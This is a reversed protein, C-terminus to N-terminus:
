LFAYKMILFIMILGCIFRLAAVLMLRKLVRAVSTWRPFLAKGVLLEWLITGTAPGLIADSAILGAMNGVTTDTSFTRTVSERGTLYVRLARGGIEATAAIAALMYLLWPQYTIFGTLSWYVVAGSFIVLTGPIRPFVTCYLGSVLIIMVCLKLLVM